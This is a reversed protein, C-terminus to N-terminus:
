DNKKQEIEQMESEFRISGQKMAERSEDYMKKNLEVSLRVSLAAFKRGVDTGYFKMVAKLGEDSLESEYLSAALDTYGHIDKPTCTSVAYRIYAARADSWLASRADIGRFMAPNAAAISEINGERENVVCAQQSNVLQEEVKAAEVVARASDEARASGAVLVIAAMTMAVPKKM